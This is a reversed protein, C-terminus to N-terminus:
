EGTLILSSNSANHNLSWELILAMVLFCLRNINAISPIYGSTPPSSGVADKNAGLNNLKIKKIMASYINIHCTIFSLTVLRTNIM